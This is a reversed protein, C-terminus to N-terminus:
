DPGNLKYAKKISDRVFVASYSIVNEPKEIYTIITKRSAPKNYTTTQPPSYQTQATGSVSNGSVAGQYNTTASGGTTATVTKISDDEEILTFYEYGYELTVEAARLMAYDRVTAADVFANGQFSIEFVNEALQIESFGGTFGKSKYTTGCGILALILATIIIKM